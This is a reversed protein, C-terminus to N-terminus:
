QRWRPAHETWVQANSRYLSVSDAGIDRGDLVAHKVTFIFDVENISKDPM